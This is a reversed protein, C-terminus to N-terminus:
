FTFRCETDVHMREERRDQRVGFGGHDHPLHLVIDVCERIGTILCASSGAVVAATGTRPRRERRRSGGSRPAPMAADAAEAMAAVAVM